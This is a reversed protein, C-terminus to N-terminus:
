CPGAAKEQGGLMVHAYTQLTFAKSGHGLRASVSALDAGHSLLYTAHFHRLDHLRIRPLKLRELLPYFERLRVNTPNLPTGSRTHFVLDSEPEREHLSVLSLLLSPPLLVTRKANETKTGPVYIVGQKLDIHEWRLRLLEGLRLGTLMLTVFLLHFRAGQGEVILTRAQEPTWTTYAPKSRKPIEVTKAPNQSIIGWRIARELAGKLMTGIMHVTTASLEKAQLDRYFAEITQPILKPLPVHGISPTIHVRIFAAYTKYGKTRVNPRAYGELWQELYEGLRTRTSGYAGIGAALTPHTASYTAQYAEAERRTLFGGVWKRRRNGEADTGMELVLTYTRGRKLITGSM